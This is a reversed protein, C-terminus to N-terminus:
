ILIIGTPPHEGRGLTALVTSTRLRPLDGLLDAFEALVRRNARTDAVVLLFRDVPDDRWKLRWRRLQAQLDYLRVEMEVGTRAGHGFLMLDWSRLDASDGSRRLVVETRYTLPRGVCGILKQLRKAQGADRISQAGPFARVSVDMGLVAGIGYAVPFSLNPLKGSEIRSYDARDIRAADAVQQQSLGLRLRNHRYEEGLMVRARACRRMGRDYLREITAM